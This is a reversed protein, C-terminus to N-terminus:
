PKVILLGADESLAAVAVAYAAHWAEAANWRRTSPSACELSRARKVLERWEELGSMDGSLLATEVVRRRNNTAVLTDWFRKDEDILEQVQRALENAADIKKQTEPKMDKGKM